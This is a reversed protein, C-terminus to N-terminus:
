SEAGKEIDAILDRARQGHDYTSKARAYYKIVELMATNAKQLDLWRKHADQIDKAYGDAIRKFDDREERLKSVEEQAERLEEQLHCIQCSRKLSGHECEIRM